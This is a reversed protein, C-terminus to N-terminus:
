QPQTAPLVAAPVTTPAAAPVPALPAMPAALAATVGAPAMGTTPPASMMTAAAAGPIQTPDPLEPLGASDMTSAPRIPAVSSTSVATYNFTMVFTVSGAQGLRGGRGGRRGGGGGPGGGGFGGGRGGGVGGVGGAGRGGRVNTGTTAPPAVVISTVKVDSFHPMSKLNRDITNVTSEDSTKGTFMCALPMRAEVGKNAVVNAGTKQPPPADKMSLGTAYTVGDDPVATTLDALCALFRPEGRYWRQALSVMNVFDTAATYRTQEKEWVAQKEALKAALTSYDNYAYAGGAILLVAAIAAAVGWAPIRSQKPAALRSDLFNISPGLAGIGALGLAVAPAMTRSSADRLEPPTAVGLAALEGSHVKFGLQETLAAADIGATEWMVMERAGSASPITSVVRRLENVFPPRPEPARLHRIASPAKGRQATLEAGTAGVTLVLTSDGGIRTTAEGLAVASPMVAAASLRAARCLAVALDIYKRPTAVLLVPQGPAPAADDMFDYVLDKVESSFEAEAQLRLMNTRTAGDAVPLEKPTVLLWRAPLGVVADGASIRQERLFQSLAKGIEDPKDLSAGPPYVFEAVHRVEPRAGAVVEAVLISREGIALGLAKKYRLPKM